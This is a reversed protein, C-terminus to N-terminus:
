QENEEWRWSQSLETPIMLVSDIDTSKYSSVEDKIGDKTECSELLELHRRGAVMEVVKRLIRVKNELERKQSGTWTFCWSHAISCCDGIFRRNQKKVYITLSKSTDVDGGPFLKNVGIARRDKGALIRIIDILLGGLHSRYGEYLIAYGRIIEHRAILEIHRM